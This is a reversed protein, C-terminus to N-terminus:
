QHYLGKKLMGGEIGQLLRMQDIPGILDSPDAITMPTIPLLSLQTQTQTQTQAQVMKKAEHNELHHDSKPDLDPIVQREVGEPGM